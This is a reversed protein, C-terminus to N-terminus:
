CPESGIAVQTQVTESRVRVASGRLRSLVKLGNSARLAARAAVFGGELRAATTSSSHGSTSEFANLGSTLAAHPTNVAPAPLLPLLAVSPAILNVLVRLAASMVQTCCCCYTM